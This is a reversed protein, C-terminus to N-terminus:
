KVPAWRAPTSLEAGMFRGYMDPLRGGCRDQREARDLLLSSAHGPVAPHGFGDGWLPPPRGATTCCCVRVLM